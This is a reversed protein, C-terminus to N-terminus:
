RAAQVEPPPIPSNEGLLLRRIVEAEHALTAAKSAFRQRLSENKESAALRRSLAAAEELSRTAAWLAREVEESQEHALTQLSFTHGVHCRYQQYGGAETVTLVGQCQPCVLEAPGGLMEGELELIAGPVEAPAEPAPTAALRALLGALEVPHVVHDVGVREIVSRPMDPALASGPAQAVSVGARAKISMMGATGCDQYGSLVVGVVRPGYSRAATRFLADVAPRHDNEKPGRVVAIHGPRVLMQTDAPAIYICGHRIEQNHDPHLAKLRGRQSLLEPLPSLFEPATHLAVFLSAPLDAPLESAMGLLVEVGGASAGIVIVDHNDM